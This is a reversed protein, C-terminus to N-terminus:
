PVTLFGAAHLEEREPYWMPHQPLAALRTVFGEDISQARYIALDRQMEAQPDIMGYRRNQGLAYGHLGIRAEPGMSRAAGGAFILACASACHGEVHTAIRHASLVTVVGRAEAIFGGHSDLTMRRIGPHQLMIDRMAATLGFDVRGQFRLETGAANVSLEFEPPTPARVVPQRIDTRAAGVSVMALGSLALVLLAYLAQTDIRSHRV